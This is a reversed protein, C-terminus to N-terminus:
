CISFISNMLHASVRRKLGFCSSVRSTIRICDSPNDMRHFYRVHYYVCSNSLILVVIFYKKLGVYNFGSM